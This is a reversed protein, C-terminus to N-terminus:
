ATVARGRAKLIEPTLRWVGPCLQLPRSVIENFGRRHPQLHLSHLDGGGGWRGQGKTSSCWVSVM